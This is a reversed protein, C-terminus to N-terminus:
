SSGDHSCGRCADSKLRPYCSTQILLRQLDAFV